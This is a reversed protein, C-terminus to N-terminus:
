NSTLTQRETESEDSAHTGIGEKRMRETKDNEVTAAATDCAVVSIRSLWIWKLEDVWTQGMEEGKEAKRGVAVAEETRGM